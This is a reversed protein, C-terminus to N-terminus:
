RYTGSSLGIEREWIIQHGAVQNDVPDDSDEDWIIINGENDVHGYALVDSVDRASMNYDFGVGKIIDVLNVPVMAAKLQIVAKFPPKGTALQKKTVTYSAWREGNPEITTKHKRAGNPRGLLVTSNRSPRLFILPSASYNVPLVQEREGGVINRTLFKSQLSFLEKDIPLEHNHVYLSHLDRLDGNPDLDGSVKVVKGESDIVTVYLWVLREADFGTPVNHGDTGNKVQVVFKLGKSGSQTIEIEGIKYGNRLLKLREIEIEKLLRLNDTIIERADYRDDLSEWREPFEYDDDVEDEFSDLGWGAKWDFMLWERITAMGRARVDDKEHEEKIARIDLPFLAPSLVSYDPGVFMHNTLKRSETRLSGVKAAPGFAYNKKEFDPDSKDALVKGPEKGMHCDQCIVGSANAPSNKFESSAEELRFGNVLNVDHCVACFGSTGLQSLTNLKGHVKRGVKNNDVVLGSKAIAKDLETPDGKPGYIPATIPGPEIHLRGSLKGYPQSLRHCVICTVGERATPHRDINSMFIDEELNMGVTNHCRNCFDGNTGATFNMVTAQMANFVPSMQAYAHQSVSWQKYQQPHCEGCETASPFEVSDEAVDPQAQVNLPNSSVALFLCLTVLTCRSYGHSEPSSLHFKMRVGKNLSLRPDLRIVVRKRSESFYGSGQPYDATGKSQDLCM